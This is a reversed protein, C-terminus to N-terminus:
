IDQEKRKKEKEEKKKKFTEQTEMQFKYEVFPLIGYHTFCKHYVL